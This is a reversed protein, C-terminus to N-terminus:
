LEFFEKGSGFDSTEVSVGVFIVAESFEVVLEFRAFDIEEDAGLRDGFAEIEGIKFGDGDDLGIGSEVEGIIGGFFASKLEDGLNDATDGTAMLGGGSNKDLSELGVVGNNLISDLM